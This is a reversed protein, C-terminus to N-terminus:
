VSTVFGRFYADRARAVAPERTDASAV